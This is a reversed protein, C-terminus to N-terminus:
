KASDELKEIFVYCFGEIFSSISKIEYGNKKIADEAYQMTQLSVSGSEKIDRVIKILAELAQDEKSLINVTM